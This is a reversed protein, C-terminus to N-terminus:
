LVGKVGAGGSGIVGQQGRRQLQSDMPPKNLRSFWLQSFGDPWASHFAYFRRATTGSGSMEPTKERERCLQTQEWDARVFGATAWVAVGNGCHREGGISGKQPTVPPRKDVNTTQLKNWSKFINSTRYHTHTHTQTVSVCFRSAPRLFPVSPVSRMSETLNLSHKTVPCAFLSAWVILGLQKIGM